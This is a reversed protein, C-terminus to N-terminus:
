GVRSNWVGEQHKGPAPLPKENSWAETRRGAWLATLGCLFCRIERHFRSAFLSNTERKQNCPAISQANLGQGNTHVRRVNMSVDQAPNAASLAISL